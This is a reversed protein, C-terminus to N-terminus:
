KEESERIIFDGFEASGHWDLEDEIEECFFQIYNDKIREWDPESIMKRMTSGYGFEGSDLPLEITGFDANLVEEIYADDVLDNVFETITEYEVDTGLIPETVIIM